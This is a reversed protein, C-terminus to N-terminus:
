DDMDEREAPKLIGSVQQAAQMEAAKKKQLELEREELFLEENDDAAQFEKLKVLFDRLHQKFTESDGKLDFLGNVFIKIQGPQLNPFANQLLQM